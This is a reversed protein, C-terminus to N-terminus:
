REIGAAGGGRQALLYWQCSPCFAFARQALKSRSNASAYSRMLMTSSCCTLVILSVAAVTSTQKSFYVTQSEM